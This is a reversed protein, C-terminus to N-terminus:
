ADYDGLVMGQIFDLPWQENDAGILCVADGERMPRLHVHDVVAQIADEWTAYNGVAQDFIIRKRCIAMKFPPKAGEPKARFRSERWRKAPIPYDSFDPDNPNAM